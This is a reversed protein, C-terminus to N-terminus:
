SRHEKHEKDRARNHRVMKVGEITVEVVFLFYFLKGPLPLMMSLHEVTELHVALWRVGGHRRGGM